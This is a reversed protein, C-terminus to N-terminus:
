LVVFEGDEVDDDDDGGEEEHDDDMPEEKIAPQTLPELAVENDSDGGHDSPNTLEEVDVTRLNPDIASEPAYLAGAMERTLTGDKFYPQIENFKAEYFGEHPMGVSYKLRKFAIEFGWLQCVTTDEAAFFRENDLVFQLISRICPWVKVVRHHEDTDMSSSEEM